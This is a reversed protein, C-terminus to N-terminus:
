SVPVDIVKRGWKIRDWVRIGFYSTTYCVVQTVIALTGSDFLNLGFFHFIFFDIVVEIGNGTLVVLLSRLRSDCVKHEHDCSSM